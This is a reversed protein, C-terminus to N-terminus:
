VAARSARHLMTCDHTAERTRRAAVLRPLVDTETAMASTCQDM